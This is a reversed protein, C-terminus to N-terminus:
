GPLRIPAQMRAKRKNQWNQWVYTRFAERSLGLITRRNQAIVKMWSWVGMQPFYIGRFCIRMIFHYIRWGVTKDSISNLAEAIREPSYSSAWAHELEQQAEPITMKLPTHAM